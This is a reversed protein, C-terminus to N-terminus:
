GTFITTLFKKINKLDNPFKNLLFFLINKQIYVTTLTLLLIFLFQILYYMNIHYIHFIKLYYWHWLYIWFTSSGIFTIFKNNMFITFIKTYKSLYLIILSIMLAYSLYYGEPPYKFIQTPYVTTYFEWYYLLYSLLILFIIAFQKQISSKNFQNFRIGYLYLLGYSFTYMIIVNFITFSIKSLYSHSLFYVIEYAIFAIIMFLFFKKNSNLKKNWWFLMPAILAMSFFILIIWVGIDEHGLLGYSFLIDRFHIQNIPYFSFYYFTLFIWTPMVLRFFRKKLYDVYSSYHKSSFEAYSIGSLIVLFPVDFNRIQFLTDPINMHALLICIIGIFRLFDYINNRQINTKMILKDIM